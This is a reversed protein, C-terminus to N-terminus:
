AAEQRQRQERERRAKYTEWRRKNARYYARCRVAEPTESRPMPGLAEAAALIADRTAPRVAYGGGLWRGVTERSRGARKALRGIGCASVREILARDRVYDLSVGRRPEPPELTRVAEMIRNLTTRKCGKRLNIWGHIQEPRVGAARAVRSVRLARIRAILEGDLRPELRISCGNGIM